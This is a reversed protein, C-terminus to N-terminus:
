RGRPGPFPHGTLYLDSEIVWGACHRAYDIERRLARWVRMNCPQLTRREQEVGLIVAVAWNTLRAFEGLLELLLTRIHCEDTNRGPIM